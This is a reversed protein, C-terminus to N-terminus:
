TRRGGAQRACGYILEDAQAPAIAARELAASTAITGLEAASIEAFSGLFKGIPTRAAAVIAVREM